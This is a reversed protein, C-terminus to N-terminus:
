EDFLEIRVAEAASEAPHIDIVEGAAARQTLDDLIEALREDDLSRDSSKLRQEAESHAM